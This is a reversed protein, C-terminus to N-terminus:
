AHAGQTRAIEDDISGRLVHWAMLFDGRLSAL